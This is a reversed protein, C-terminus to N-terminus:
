WVRRAATTSNLLAWAQRLLPMEMLGQLHRVKQTDPVSSHAPGMVGQSQRPDPKLFPLHLFTAHHRSICHMSQIMTAVQRTDILSKHTANAQEIICTWQGLFRAPGGSNEGAAQMLWVRANRLDNAPLVAYNDACTQFSSMICPNAAPSLM